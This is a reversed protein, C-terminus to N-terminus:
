LDCAHERITDINYYMSFVFRRLAQFVRGDVSHGVKTLQDQGDLKQLYSRYHRYYLTGIDVDLHPGPLPPM